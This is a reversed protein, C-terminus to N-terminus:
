RRSGSMSGVLVFVKMGFASLRIVHSTLLEPLVNKAVPRHVAGAGRVPQTEENGDKGGVLILMYSM